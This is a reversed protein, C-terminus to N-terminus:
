RKRLHMRLSPAAGKQRQLLYIDLLGLVYADKKERECQQLGALNEALFVLLKDSSLDPMESVKGERAELKADLEEIAEDRADVDDQLVLVLMRKTDDSIGDMAVHLTARMVNHVGGQLWMVACVSLGSEARRPQLLLASPSSPPLSHPIRVPGLTDTLQMPLGSESCRELVYELSAFEQLTTVGRANCLVENLAGVDLAESHKQLDVGDSLLKFVILCGLFKDPGEQVCHAAM